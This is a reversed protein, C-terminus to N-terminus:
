EVTFSQLEVPVSQVTALADLLGWGEQDNPSGANSAYNKLATELTAPTLTPDTELALAGIGAAFPCAMSTGNKVYYDAPGSGDLNAGDNDIRLEPATSFVSDRTSITAAGPALVDPKTLGDVRPGHSSFPALTGVTLSSFQYVNGLYNTWSRRQTWAGVAIADDANAPKSVTYAADPSDFTGVGAVSYLHVLPTEPTSNTLTFSYTKSTGAPVNPNLIYRKGDTGRSSFGSFAQTLLEGAGLNTCSLTINADGATGDLWIVRIWEDSTYASGGGSNDITYQFTGTTGSAVATVSDHKDDDAENGASIFCATGAAAAADVAQCVANSGDMYTSVGGYSMSFIDCGVTQARNIAEVEDTDSAGGNADNGIKYFYLTAGPASGVYQGGSLGGSGVVSGTVHTGHDTVTNSVDSGWTSTDTGDTMDYKEAPTPLDSHSLEVGSDAVAIKVGTGDRATVGNGAHVDDVNTQQGALDNLPMNLHETSAVRVFRSDARVDELAAYDITALYFAHPHKGPVAPVYTAHVVIGSDALGAIETATLKSKVYLACDERDLNSPNLGFSQLRELHAALTVGERRQEKMARHALIEGDIKDPTPAEAFAPGTVMLLGLVVAALAGEMRFTGVEKAEMNVGTKPM